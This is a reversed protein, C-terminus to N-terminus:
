ANEPLRRANDSFDEQDAAGTSIFEQGQQDGVVIGYRDYLLSLFDKFEM